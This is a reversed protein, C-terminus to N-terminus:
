ATEEPQTRSIFSSMMSRWWRTGVPVRTITIQGATRRLLRSRGPPGDQGPKDRGDVGKVNRIRALTTGAVLAPM